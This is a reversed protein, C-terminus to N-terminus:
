FLVHQSQLFCQADELPGLKSSHLLARIAYELSDNIKCHEHQTKSPSVPSSNIDFMWDLAGRRTLVNSHRSLAAPQVNELGSADEEVYNRIGLDRVANGEKGVEGVNDAHAEFNTRYTYPIHRSLYIQSREFLVVLANGTKSENIIASHECGRVILGCRNGRKVSHIRSTSHEDLKLPCVAQTLSM